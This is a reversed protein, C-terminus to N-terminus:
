AAVFGDWRWLAGDVTVLRQGPRLEAQLRAGDAAEVLGIQDLRRQLLDSGSVVSSLAVTGEPLPPDGEGSIPAAWHLPAGADASAELDDGLAAGLATEYGPAVKLADVIAPWLSTGGLNLVRSLTQAEAELRTLRGEIEQLAPRAADVVAQASRFLVR